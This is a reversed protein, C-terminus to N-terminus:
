DRDVHERVAKGDAADIDVTTKNWTGPTVVDVSWVTSGNDSTDLAVATVTGKKIDTAKQAAQAASIRAAALKDTNEKKDDADQDKDTTSGSVKGSAADVRVDTATGDSAVVEADWEPAGQKSDGDGLEIELLKSGSVEKQATRAAKDWDVDTASLLKERESQDDNLRGSPGASDSQETDPSDGGDDSSCATLFSLSATVACLAGVSRKLTARQMPLGKTGPGPPIETARRDDWGGRHGADRREPVQGM